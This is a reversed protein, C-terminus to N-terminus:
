IMELEGLMIEQADKHNSIDQALERAHARARRLQRDIIELQESVTTKATQALQYASDAASQALEATASAANHALQAAKEDVIADLRRTVTEGSESEYSVEVNIVGKKQLYYAAAATAAGVTVAGALFGVATKM